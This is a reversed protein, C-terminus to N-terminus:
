ASSVSFVLYAQRHLWRGREERSVLQAGKGEILRIWEDTKKFTLHEEQPTMWGGRLRNARQDLWELRRYESETTFVSEAVVLRHRTVRLVEEILGEPDQAHHLVFYAYAVDFHQSPYPLANPTAKAFPLMTRNTEEVDTLHLSAGTRFALHEAVYGEGAGVDLVVAS